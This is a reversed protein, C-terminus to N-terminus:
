GHQPPEGATGHWGLVKDKGVYARRIETRVLWKGGAWFLFPGLSRSIAPGAARNEHLGDFVKTRRSIHSTHRTVPSKSFASGQTNKTGFHIAWVLYLDDSGDDSPAQGSDYIRKESQKKGM